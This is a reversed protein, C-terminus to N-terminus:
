GGAKSTAAVAKKGAKKRIVEDIYRIGSGKYPEPKRLRRIEAAVQGVLQKDIGSVTIIDKDVSVKLNAPIKYIVPHSFGINLILKGERVEARFGVGVLKLKKEFEKNVGAIMNSVLRYFTGWLAKQKKDKLNQISLIIQNDKILINVLPHILQKLEGKPGKIFIQNNEVKVETGKPISIPKKALRSMILLNRM